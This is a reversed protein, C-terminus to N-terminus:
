TLLLRREGAAGAVSASGNRKRSCRCRCLCCMGIVVVGFAFLIRACSTGKERKENALVAATFLFYEKGKQKKPAKLGPVISSRIM